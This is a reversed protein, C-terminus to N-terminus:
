GHQLTTLYEDATLRRPTGGITWSAGAGMEAMAALVARGLETDTRIRLDNNDPDVFLNAAGGAMGRCDFFRSNADNPAFDVLYEDWTLKTAGGFVASSMNGPTFVVIINWDTLLAQGAASDLRIRTGVTSHPCDAVLLSYTCSPTQGQQQAATSGVEYIAALYDSGPNADGYATQVTRAFVTEHHVQHGEMLRQLRMGRNNADISANRVIVVNDHKDAFSTNRSCATCLSYRCISACPVAWSGAEGFATYYGHTHYGEILAHETQDIAQPHDGALAGSAAPVIVDSVGSVEVYFFNGGAGLTGSAIAQGGITVRYTGRLGLTGGSETSTLQEAIYTGVAVTEATNRVVYGIRLTVAGTPLSDVTMVDDTISGTFETGGRHVYISGGPTDSDIVVDRIIASMGLADPAYINLLNSTSYGRSYYLCDTFSGGGSNTIHKPNHAFVCGSYDINQGGNVIGLGANFHSFFIDYVAGGDRDVNQGWVIAGFTSVPRVRYAGVDPALGDPMNVYLTWTSGSVLEFWSSDSTAICNAKSTAQRMLREAALPTADMIDRQVRLCHMTSYADNVPALNTGTNVTYTTKWCTGSELTWTQDTVDKDGNMRPWPQRRYTEGSWSARRRGQPQAMFILGKSVTGVSSGFGQNDWEGWLGVVAGDALAGLATLGTINQKPNFRDGAAADSGSLSNVAKTISTEAAARMTLRRNRWRRHTEFTEEWCPRPDIYPEAPLTPMIRPMFPSDTLCVEPEFITDDVNFTITNTVTTGRVTTGGNSTNAWALKKTGPFPETEVAPPNYAISAHARSALTVSGSTGSKSVAYMYRTAAPDVWPAATLTTTMTGGPTGTFTGDDNYTVGSLVWSTPRVQQAPYAALREAIEAEYRAKGFRYTDASQAIEAADADAGFRAFTLLVRANNTPLVGAVWAVNIKRYGTGDLVAGTVNFVTFKATGPEVIYIQGKVAADADDFTDLWGSIANGGAANNDAFIQTVATVTASNFRIFGSGPDADTITTSFQFAIGAESGAPAFRLLLRNGNTFNSSSGAVYTVPVKRYGGGDTISGTVNFLVFKGSAPENLILQGRVGGNVDDFSDIWATISGGGVEQLDIYLITVSALTANNFRINGNGPDADTTTSSFTMAVGGTAVGARTFQLNVRAANTPLTASGERWVVPVKRYGTGTVVAGTVDFVAYKLTGPEALYIQGRVPGEVDDFTDVWGSATGGGVDTDDIYLFTVSAPTANNYRINGAGPDSDTTTTSFTFGVGGAYAANLAADAASTAASAANAGSTAVDAAIASQAAAGAANVAATQTSGASNVAAVQTSGAANVNAVQTTGASNVLGVQTAGAANIDAINESVATANEALAEAFEEPTGTYGASVAAAYASVGPAGSYVVTRIPSTAPVNYIVAPAGGAGAAPENLDPDAAIKVRFEGSEIVSRGGDVLEDFSWRLVAGARGSPVLAATQDGTLTALLYDGDADDVVEAAVNVPTVGLTGFVRLAFSRNAYDQVADNDDLLRWGVAVVEGAYVLADGDAGFPPGNREM